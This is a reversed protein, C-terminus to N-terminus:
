GERAAAPAAAAAQYSSTAYASNAMRGAAAEKMEQRISERRATLMRSDEADTVLISGLLTNIDDLTRQVRQRREPPMQMHTDAWERRFPALSANLAVLRDVLRQRDALVKLLAEPNRDTILRRQNESLQKLQRYCDRQEELLALLQDTREEIGLAEDATATM